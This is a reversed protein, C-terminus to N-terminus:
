CHWLRALIGHFRRATPADHIVHLVPHFELERELLAQGLEDLLIHVLVTRHEQAAEVLGPEEWALIAAVLRKPGKTILEGIGHPVPDTDPDGGMLVAM